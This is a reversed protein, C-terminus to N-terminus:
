ELLDNLVSTLVCEPRQHQDPFGPVNGRVASISNGPRSCLNLIDTIGGAMDKESVQHLSIDCCSYDKDLFIEGARTFEFQEAALIYLVARHTRAFVLQGTMDRRTEARLKLEEESAPKDSDIGSDLNVAEFGTIMSERSSFDVPQVELAAIHLNGSADCTMSQPKFDLAIKKIDTVVGGASEDILVRFLCKQSESYTFVEFQRNNNNYFFAALSCDVNESTLGKQKLWDRLIDTGIVYIRKEGSVGYSMGAFRRNKDRSETMVRSLCKQGDVFLRGSASGHWTYFYLNGEGPEATPVHLVTKGSLRMQEKIERDGAVLEMAGDVRARLLRRETFSGVEREFAKGPVYGRWFSEVYAIKREEWRDLFITYSPLGTKGAYFWSQYWGSNPIQYWNKGPLIEVEEDALSAIALAANVSRGPGASFPAGVPRFVPRGAQDHQILGRQDQHQAHGSGYDASFASGDFVQRFLYGASPAFDSKSLARFMRFNQISDVFFAEAPECAFLYGVPRQQENGTSVRFVKASDSYGIFFFTEAAGAMSGTLALIVTIAMVIGFKMNIM